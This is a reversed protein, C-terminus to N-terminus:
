TGASSCTGASRRTQLFVWFLYSAVCCIGAAFYRCVMAIDWYNSTTIYSLVNNAFVNSVTVLQILNEFNDPLMTFAGVGLAIAATILIMPWLRAIKGKLYKWYSFKNERMARVISKMMFYGSVVLFIDVGLYGSTLGGWGLIGDNWNLHYFVVAIIAIGKLVDIRYNRSNDM